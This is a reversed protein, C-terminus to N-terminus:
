AKHNDRAAKEHAKRSILRRVIVVAAFTVGFGLAAGSIDLLVDSLAAGRNSFIQITEDIAAVPVSLLVIIMKARITRIFILAYTSLFVSLVFHEAFHALKRINELIWEDGASAPKSGGCTLIDEVVEKVASSQAESEARSRISNSWIFAITLVILVILIIKIAKLINWRRRKIM